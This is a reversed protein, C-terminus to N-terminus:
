PWGDVRGQCAVGWDSLAPIAEQCFEGPIGGPVLLTVFILNAFAKGDTLRGAGGRELSISRFLPLSSSLSGPFLSAALM